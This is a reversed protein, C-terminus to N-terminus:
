PVQGASRSSDKVRVGDYSRFTQSDQGKNRLIKVQPSVRSIVECIVSNICDLLALHTQNEKFNRDTLEYKTRSRTKKKDLETNPSMAKLLTKNTRTFPSPKTQTHKPSPERRRGHTRLLSSSLSPGAQHSCNGALTLRWLVSRGATDRQCSRIFHPQLRWLVAIGQGSTDSFVGTGRAHINDPPRM